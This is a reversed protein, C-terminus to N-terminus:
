LFTLVALYRRDCERLIHKIHSPENHFLFRSFLVIGVVRGSVLDARGCIFFSSDNCQSAKIFFGEIKTCAVAHCAPKNSLDFIGAGSYLTKNKLKGTMDSYYYM